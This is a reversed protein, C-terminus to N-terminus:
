LSLALRNIEAIVGGSCFYGFDVNEEKRGGGERKKVKKKKEEKKRREKEKEM